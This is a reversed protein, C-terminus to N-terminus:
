WCVINSRSYFCVVVISELNWLIMWLIMMLSQFKPLALQQQLQKMCPCLPEPCKEKLLRQSQVVICSRISIPIACELVWNMRWVLKVSCRQSQLIRPFHNSPLPIWIGLDMPVIVIKLLSEIRRLSWNQLMPM